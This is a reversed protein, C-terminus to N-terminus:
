ALIAALTKIAIGRERTRHVCAEIVARLEDETLLAITGQSLLITGKGGFRRGVVACPSVESFVFIKPTQGGLRAVVRSLSRKLGIPTPGKAGHIKRLRREMRLSLWFFVSCLVTAIVAFIVLM